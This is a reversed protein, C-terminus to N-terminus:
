EIIYIKYFKRAAQTQTFKFYMNFIRSFFYTDCQLELHSFMDDVHTLM